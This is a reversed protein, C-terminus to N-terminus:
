KGSVIAPLGSTFPHVGTPSYRILNPLNEKLLPEGSNATYWRRVATDMAGLFLLLDFMAAKKEGSEISFAHLKSKTEPLSFIVHTEKLFAHSRLDGKHVLGGRLQYCSQGDLGLERPSSYTDVFRIYDARKVFKSKPMLLGSCIEPLTLAVLLSPYYLKADKARHMDSVVTELEYPLLTM